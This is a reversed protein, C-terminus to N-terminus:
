IVVTLYRRYIKDKEPFMKRFQQAYKGSSNVVILKRKPDEWISVNSGYEFVKVEFDYDPNLYYEDGTIGCIIDLELGLVKEMKEFLSRVSYNRDLMSGGTDFYWGNKGFSENDKPLSQEFLEIGRKDFGHIRLVTKQLDSLQM